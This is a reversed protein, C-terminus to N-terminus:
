YTISTLKSNTILSTENMRLQKSIVKLFEKVYGDRCAVNFPLWCSIDEKM